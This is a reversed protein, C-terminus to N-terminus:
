IAVANAAGGGETGGGSSVAAYRGGDAGADIGAAGEEVAFLISVTLWRVSTAPCDEPSATFLGPAFGLAGAASATPFWGGNSAGSACPWVSSLVGAAFGLVSAACEM